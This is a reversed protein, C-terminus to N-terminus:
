VLISPGKDLENLPTISGQPIKPKRANMVQSLFRWDCIEVHCTPVIVGSAVQENRMSRDSIKTSIYGLLLDLYWFRLLEEGQDSKIMRGSLYVLQM